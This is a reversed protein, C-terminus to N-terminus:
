GLLPMINKESVSVVEPNMWKYNEPHDMLFVEKQRNLCHFFLEELNGSESINLFLFRELRSIILEDRKKVKQKDIREKHMWLSIVLVHGGDMDSRLSKPLKFDQIGKALFYIINSPSGPKRWKLAEKELASQWGGAVTVPQSILNRILELAPQFVSM